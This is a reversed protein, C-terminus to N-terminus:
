QWIPLEMQLAEVVMNRLGQTMVGKPDFHDECPHGIVM